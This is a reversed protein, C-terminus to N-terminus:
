GQNETQDQADIAKMRATHIRNECIGKKKAVVKKDRKMTKERSRFCQRLYVIMPFSDHNAPSCGNKCRPSIGMSKKNETKKKPLAENSSSVGGTCVEEEERRM